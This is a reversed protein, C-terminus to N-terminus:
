GRIGFADSSWLHVLLFYFVSILALALVFITLARRTKINYPLLVFDMREELGRWAAPPPKKQRNDDEVKLMQSLVKQDDDSIGTMLTKEYKEQAEPKRDMRFTYGTFHPLAALNKSNIERPIRWHSISAACAHHYFVHLIM